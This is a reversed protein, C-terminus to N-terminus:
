DKGDAAESAWLDAASDVVSRVQQVIMEYTTLDDEKLPKLIATNYWEWYLSKVELGVGTNLTALLLVFGKYRNTMSTVDGDAAYRSAWHRIDFQTLLWDSRAAADSSTIGEFWQAKIAETFAFVLNDLWVQEKPWQLSNALRAQLVSERIAKLEATEVLSQKTVAASRVLTSLEDTRIPVYCFGFRRLSTVREVLESLDKSFFSLVDYTSWVSRSGFEGTLTGHQNFHRDDVVLIEALKAASMIGFSPHTVLRNDAAGDETRFTPALQVKGLEIANTLANRIYEITDLAKQSLEEYRVLWDSQSIDTPAVIAEFGADHLKRLLGLHRLYTVSLGDLYLKARPTIPPPNSWPMENLKLYSRAKQEEAQTLQGSRVLASVVDDCGCLLVAFGSLDAQEEMLSNVRHVPSSRVVLKQQGNDSPVAAEALMGALDVGVESALEPDVKATRDFRTLKNTSLLARIERAEQVRSPQHFTLHQREEFLWTLTTHPIIVRDFFDLVPGVLRLL